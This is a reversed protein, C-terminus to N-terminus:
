PTEEAAATHQGSILLILAPTFAGLLVVVSMTGNM